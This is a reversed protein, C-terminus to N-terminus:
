PSTTSKAALDGPIKDFPVVQLSPDPEIDREGTELLDVVIPFTRSGDTGEFRLLRGSTPDVWYISREGYRLVEVDVGRLEDLRLFASGETQLILEANEPQEAALAVILAILQDIRRRELDVPREIVSATLAVGLDILDEDLSPRREFVRELSWWVESLPDVAPESTTVIAHGHHGVWDVEGSLTLTGGEPGLPTSLTFTAGGSERNRYLVDAMLTAQERTLPTPASSEGESCAQTTSVVILAAIAAGIRRARRSPGDAIM